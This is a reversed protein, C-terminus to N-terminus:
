LCKDLDACTAAVLPVDEPWGAEKWCIAISRVKNYFERHPNDFKLYSLKHDAEKLVSEHFEIIRARRFHQLDDRARVALIIKRAESDSEKPFFQEQGLGYPMYVINRRTRPNGAYYEMSVNQECPNEKRIQSSQSRTALSSINVSSSSQNAARNDSLAPATAAVSSENSNILAQNTKKSIANLDLKGAMASQWIKKSMIDDGFIARAKTCDPDNLRNWGQPFNVCGFSSDKLEIAVIQHSYIVRPFQVVGENVFSLIRDKSGVTRNVTRDFLVLGNLLGSNCSGEYTMGRIKKCSFADPDNPVEGRIFANVKCSGATGKIECFDQSYANPIMTSLLALILLSYQFVLKLASSM